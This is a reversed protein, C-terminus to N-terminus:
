VPEKPAAAFEPFNKRFWADMAAAVKQASAIKEAEHTGAAMTAWHRVAMAAVPDKARLVFVPEEAGAKNLCSDPNKLQEIKTVEPGERLTTNWTFIDRTAPWPNASELTTM